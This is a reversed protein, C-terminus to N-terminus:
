CKEGKLIVFLSNKIKGGYCKRKDECLPYCRDENLLEIGVSRNYLRTNHLCGLINKDREKIKDVMSWGVFEQISTQPVNIYSQIFDANKIQLEIEHRASAMTPTENGFEACATMMLSLCLLSVKM